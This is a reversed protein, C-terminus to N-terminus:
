EDLIWLRRIGNKAKKSDCCILSVLQSSLYRWNRWNGHWIKKSKYLNQFTMKQGADTAKELNPLDKPRSIGMRSVGKTAALSRELMIRKCIDRLTNAIQRAPTDCRFVHCMHKRTARDRAVYAFDRRFLLSITDYPCDLITLPYM